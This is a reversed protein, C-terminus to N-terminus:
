LWKSEAYSFTNLSRQASNLSRASNLSQVWVNVTCQMRPSCHQWLYLVKYPLIVYMSVNYLFMWVVALGSWKKTKAIIANRIETDLLPQMCLTTYLQMYTRLYNHLLLVFTPCFCEDILTKTNPAVDLIAWGNSIMYMCPTWHHM